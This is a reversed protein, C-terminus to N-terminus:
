YKVFYLSVSEHNHFIIDAAILRIFYTEPYLINVHHWRPICFLLAHNKSFISSSPLVGKKTIFPLHKRLSCIHFMFAKININKTLPELSAAYVTRLCFTQVDQKYLMACLGPEVFVVHVDMLMTCEAMSECYVLM